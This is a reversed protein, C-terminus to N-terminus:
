LKYIGLMQEKRTGSNKDSSEESESRLKVFRLQRGEAPFLRLLDGGSKLQEERM